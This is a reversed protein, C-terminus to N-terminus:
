VRRQQIVTDINSENGYVNRLYRLTRLGIDRPPPETEASTTHFDRSSSSSPPHNERQHAAPGNADPDHTRTAATWANGIEDLFAAASTRAADGESHFILSTDRSYTGHACSAIASLSLTANGTGTKKKTKTTTTTKRIKKVGEVRLYRPGSFDRGADLCCTAKPSATVRHWCEALANRLQDMCEADRAELDDEIAFVLSWKHNFTTKRSRTVKCTVKWSGANKGPTAGVKRAEFVWRRCGDLSSPLLSSSSSALPASPAKPPTVSPQCPTRVM